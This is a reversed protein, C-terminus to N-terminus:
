PIGLLTECRVATDSGSGGDCTDNAGAGGDLADNGGEGYLLDNGGGGNLTDDGDGGLLIDTGNGATLTDGGSGAMLCDAGGRGDLNDIGASALVLDNQNTGSITGSGSVISVLNLSACASPKLANATIVVNEQDMRTSPVTNSAAYAAMTGALLICIGGLGALRIWAPANM